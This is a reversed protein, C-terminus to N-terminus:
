NRKTWQFIRVTLSQVSMLYASFLGVTGDLFGLKLFYNLIFKGKPNLFLRLYSFPKNEKTLIPADIDSYQIMRSIFSSIFGDKIHYLPSHLEGVRGNVKWTEHVPREFKGSNRKALRLLKTNGTEGHLLRQHFCVDIRNLLLGSYKTQSIEQKIERQLETGVYEDDDVFIIWDGHAKKLAFNRQSAFDNELPRYYINIKDTKKHSKIPSDVVIITEDAFKISDLVLQNIKESKSIIVATLKM